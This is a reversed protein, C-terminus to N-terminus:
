RREGQALLDGNGGELRFSLDIRLVRVTFLATGPAMRKDRLATM